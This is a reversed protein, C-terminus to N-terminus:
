ALLEAENSNDDVILAFPSESKQYALYPQKPEAICTQNESGLQEQVARMSQFLEDLSKEVLESEGRKLYSQLLQFYLMAIYM